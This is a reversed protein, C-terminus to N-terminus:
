KFLTQNPDHAIYLEIAKQKDFILKKGNQTVSPKLFTDKYRQATTHCVNFLDRIGRLGYISNQEEFQFVTSDEDKITQSSLLARMEGKFQGLTLMLLPAEDSQGLTLMALPTDDTLNPKMINYNNDFNSSYNITVPM